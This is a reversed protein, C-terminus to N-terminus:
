TKTDKETSGYDAHKNHNFIVEAEDKFGHLRPENPECFSDTYGRTAPYERIRTRSCMTAIMRFLNLRKLTERDFTYVLAIYGGELPEFIAHLIWLIPIPESSFTDHIRNILPFLSMIIYGLPYLLLPWVEKKMMDKRQQTESDHHGYWKHKKRSVNIIIYVYMFFVIGLIIYNPVYWLAYRLGIGFDNNVETCNPDSYNTHTGQIWCWAGAEGYTVNIFPIWTVLLPSVFIVLIYYFEFRESDKHFVASRFLTITICVFALTVFWATTQDFFGSAVCLNHLVPNDFNGDHDALRIFRLSIVISNLLAAISLYLILRQIFFMYKKLFFILVIVGVCAVTSVIGIAGSIVSLVMNQHQAEESETCNYSEM